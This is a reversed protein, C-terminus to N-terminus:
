GKIQGFGDCCRASLKMRAWNNHVADWTECAVVCSCDKGGVTKRCDKLIGRQIKLLWLIVDDAGLYFIDSRGWTSLCLGIAEPSIIGLVDIKEALEKASIESERKEKIALNLEYAVNDINNVGDTNCVLYKHCCRSQWVGLELGKKSCCCTEM